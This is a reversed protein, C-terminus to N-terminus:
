EKYRYNRSGRQSGPEYTKCNVQCRGKFTESMNFDICRSTLEHDEGGFGAWKWHVANLCNVWGAFVPFRPALRLMREGKPIM